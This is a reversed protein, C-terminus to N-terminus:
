RIPRRLMSIIFGATVLSLLLGNFELAQPMDITCDILPQVHQVTNANIGDDVTVSIGSATPECSIHAGTSTLVPCHAAAVAFVQSAESFCQNNYQYAM